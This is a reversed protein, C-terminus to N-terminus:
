KEVRLYGKFKRDNGCPGGGVVIAGTEVFDSLEKFCETDGCTVCGHSALGAHFAFTNRGYKDLEDYDAVSGDDKIRHLNHWDRGKHTRHPAIMYEGLPTPGYNKM